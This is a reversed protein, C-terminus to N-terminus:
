RGMQTLNMFSTVDIHKEIMHQINESSVHDLKPTIGLIPVKCLTEIMSPNTKEDLGPNSKIGNIIIGLVEIGMNKAYEVTLYTHNITGLDPRTVIVAPLEMAKILDSVLYNEGLPVSIGGAGEVIFCEHLNKIKRWHAMVDAMSVYKGELMAATYPALPEKWEFPTIEEHSLATQSMDKLLSTDSEPHTRPVGSLFPKFVGIDAQKQRFAAALGCSVITKGVGTDTGTVFFSRM